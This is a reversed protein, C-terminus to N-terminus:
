RRRAASPLRRRLFPRRLGIAVAIRFHDVLDLFQDLRPHARGHRLIAAVDDELAKVAGGANDRQMQLAGAGATRRGGHGQLVADLVHQAMIHRFHGRDFGDSTRTQIWDPGFRIQGLRRVRNGIGRQVRNEAIGAGQAFPLVLRDGVRQQHRDIIQHAPTGGFGVDGRRPKMEHHRLLGLRPQLRQEVFAIALLGHRRRGGRDDAIIQIEGSGQWAPAARWRRQRLFQRGIGFARPEHRHAAGSQLAAIENDRRPRQPQIAPGHRAEVLSPM